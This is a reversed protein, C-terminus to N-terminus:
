LAVKLALTTMSHRKEARSRGTTSIQGIDIAATSALDSLFSSADPPVSDFHWEYGLVVSIKKDSGPTITGLTWELSTFSDIRYDRHGNARRPADLTPKYYTRHKLKVDDSLKWILSPRLSLRYRRTPNPKFSQEVPTPVTNPDSQPLLTTFSLTDAQEFEALAAVSFGFELQDAAKKLAHHLTNRHGVSGLEEPLELLKWNPGVLCASAPKPKEAELEAQLDKVATDFTTRTKTGEDSPNWTVEYKIGSGVEYRQDIQMFTDSFREIFAFSEWHPDFYYDYNMLISTVDESFKRGDTESDTFDLSAGASVRLQSPYQGASFETNINAKSRDSTGASDGAFGASASLTYGRSAKQAKEASNLFKGLTEFAKACTKSEDGWQPPAPPTGERSEPSLTFRQVFATHAERLTTLDKNLDAQAVPTLSFLALLAVGVRRAFPFLRVPM